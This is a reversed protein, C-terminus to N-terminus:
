SLISRYRRASAFQSMKLENTEKCKNKRKTLESKKLLAKKHGDPKENKHYRPITYNFVGM